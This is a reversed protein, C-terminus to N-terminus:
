SFGGVAIIMLKHEWPPLTFMVCRQKVAGAAFRHFVSLVELTDESTALLHESAALSQLATREVIYSYSGRFCDETFGITRLRVHTLRLWASQEAAAMEEEDRNRPVTLVLDVAESSM